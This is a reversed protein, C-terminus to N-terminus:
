LSFKLGIINTPNWTSNKLDNQQLFYVATKMFSIIRIECGLYLRNRNLKSNDVDYFIEDTIYPILKLPTFGKGFKVSILDRNRIVPDKDQKMRYEFRGRATIELMGFKMKTSLTAHPRHEQVWVDNKLEYVERFNISLLFNAVFPFSIGIDGHTYKLDEGMNLTRFDGEISLTHTENLAKSLKTAQWLEPQEAILLLPIFIGSLLLKMKDLRNPKM